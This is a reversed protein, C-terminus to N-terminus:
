KYLRLNELESYSTVVRKLNTVMPTDMPRYDEMMFTRLIDVTNKAQGLFIEGLIYWVELGMFHHTLGIDKLEFKTDLYEKYRAIIDEAGTLFLDDVYLVLILPNNWVLIFYLNPDLKSKTFGM